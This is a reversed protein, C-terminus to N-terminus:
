PGMRWPCRVPVPSAVGGAGITRARGSGPLAELLNYISTPHGILQEQKLLDDIDQLIQFLGVAKEEPSLSFYSYNSDANM